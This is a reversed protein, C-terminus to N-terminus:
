RVTNFISVYLFVIKSSAEVLQTNIKMKISYQNKDLNKGTTPDTKFYIPSSPRRNNLDQLLQLNM